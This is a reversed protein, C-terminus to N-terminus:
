EGGGPRSLANRAMCAVCHVDCPKCLNFEGAHPELAIWSLYERLREVEQVLAPVATRAAAMFQANLGDTSTTHAVTNREQQSVAVVTRAFPYRRRGSVAETDAPVSSTLNLLRLKELLSLETPKFRAAQAM